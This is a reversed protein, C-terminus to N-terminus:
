HTGVKSDDLSDFYSNLKRTGAYGHRSLIAFTLTIPRALLLKPDVKCREGFKLYEPSRLDLDPRNSSIDLTVVRSDLEIHNATIFAPNKLGPDPFDDIISGVFSVHKSECEGTFLNTPVPLVHVQIM